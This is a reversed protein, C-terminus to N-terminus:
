GWGRIRTRMGLPLRLKPQTCTGTISYQGIGTITENGSEGIVALIIMTQTYDIVVFKQLMEHPIDKRASIFRQYMSEDSLSHFFDKLQPEDSIKVPRLLIDLGTRTTKHVELEEPYDGKM